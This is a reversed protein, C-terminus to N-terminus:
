CKTLLPSSLYLHKLSFLFCQPPNLSLSHSHPPPPHPLLQPFLLHPSTATLAEGWEWGGAEAKTFGCGLPQHHPGFCASSPAPSLWHRSQWRLVHKNELESVDLRWFVSSAEHWGRGGKRERECGARSGISSPMSCSPCLGGLIFLYLIDRSLFCLLHNGVMENTSMELYDKHRQSRLSEGFPKKGKFVLM